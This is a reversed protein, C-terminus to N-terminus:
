RVVEWVVFRGTGQMSRVVGRMRLLGLRKRVYRAVRNVAERNTPDTRREEMLRKSLFATPLPEAATRLTDLLFRTIGRGLDGAAMKPRVPRISALRFDPAIQRIVADVHTLDADLRALRDLIVKMEGAMEARRKVLGTLVYDTM